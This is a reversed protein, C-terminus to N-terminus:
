AGLIAIAYFWVTIALLFVVFEAVCLIVNAINAKQKELRRASFEHTTYKSQMNSQHKRFLM